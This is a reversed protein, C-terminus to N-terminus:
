ACTKCNYEKKEYTLNEQNIGETICPIHAWRKCSDCQVMTCDESDKECDILNCYICYDEVSESEKMLLIAIHRRFATNAKQTTEVTSIDKHQLYTEAFKLILPGCNHGDSQRPHQMIKSNWDSSSKSTLRKIFNRLFGIVQHTTLFCYYIMKFYNVREM